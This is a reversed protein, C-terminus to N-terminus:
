SHPFTVDDGFPADGLLPRGTRVGSRAIAVAMPPVAAVARAGAASLCTPEAMTAVVAGVV